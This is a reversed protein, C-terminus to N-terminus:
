KPVVEPPPPLLPANGRERLYRALPVLTLDYGALELPCKGRLYPQVEPGFPTLRYVLEFVALYRQASEFSDFGAFNQYHQDFRRILRETTNNTLPIRPHDYANVLLPYHREVSEFIPGLRPEAPVAEAWQAQLEAYRKEVTRRTRAQFVRDLQQRRKLIEPQTEAYDRGFAEKFGRHWYQLAHFVCEHHVAQPFVAALPEPIGSKLFM